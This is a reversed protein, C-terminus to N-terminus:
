CDLQCPCCTLVQIGSHKHTSRFHSVEKYKGPDGLVLKRWLSGKEGDVAINKWTFNEQALQRPLKSSVHVHLAQAPGTLNAPAAPDGLM